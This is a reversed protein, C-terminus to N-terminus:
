LSQLDKELSKFDEDTNIEGINIEREFDKDITSTTDNKITKALIDETQVNVEGNPAKPGFILFGVFLAALIIIIAIIKKM